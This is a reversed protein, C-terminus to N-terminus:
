VHIANLLSLKSRSIGVYYLRLEEVEHPLREDEPISLVKDVVSNFDDAITVEDFELGKSSHATCLTLAHREREHSKAYEYAEIIGAPTHTTLLNVASKLNVDDPHQDLLYSTFSSYTDSLERRHKHFYDCDEQLHKFEPSVFKGPKLSILTLPLKFIDSAKRTLSYPIGQRNLKIMEGILASNTRSIYARTEIPTGSPYDVGKFSMDPNLHKRCFAEIRKAIPAAVRFSQTMSLNIAESAMQKFGNITHNFSYINQNEDGVMIKKTAPLLKFIELTVPNLDGAEDLMLLDFTSHEISKTHLLMHYYKLYFAHSAKVEGSEMAHMYKDVLKPIIPLIDDFQAFFTDTCTYESLCFKEFYKVVELKIEYPVKDTISRYTFNDVQLKFPVVTNAYALSHTTKCVVTKPFRGASEDAIAKNYALYLGSQPQIREAIATLLSTKGAGSVANVSVLHTSPKAITDVILQQEDTLNM